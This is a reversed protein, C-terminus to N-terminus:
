TAASRAAYTDMRGSRIDRDYRKTSFDNADNSSYSRPNTYTRPKDQNFRVEGGNWFKPRSTKGYFNRNANRNNAM